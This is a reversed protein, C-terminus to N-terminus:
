KGAKQPYRQESYAKQAFLSHAMTKAVFEQKPVDSPILKNDEYTFLTPTNSQISIYGGIQVSYKGM